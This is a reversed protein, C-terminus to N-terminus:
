LQVVGMGHKKLLEVLRDLQFPKSMFDQMGAALCKKRDDKTANATLAIIKPVSASSNEQILKTAQYGDMEPMQIDMFVLDYVNHECLEVAIKGNEAVDPDFGLKQLLTSILKQNILNDEVVLIRSGESSEPKTISEENSLLDTFVRLFDQGEFTSSLKVHRGKLELEDSWSSSSDEQVIVYKAERNLVLDQNKNLVKNMGVSDVILIANQLESMSEHGSFLFCGLGHRVVTTKIRVRQFTDELCVIVPRCTLKSLDTEIRTAQNKAIPLSITFFFESGRGKESKVDLKGGMVQILRASIALGLGTGGFKRSTSSDEQAFADFVSGLKEEDIGVGTDKVRIRIEAETESRTILNAGLEVFGESTFKIANSVLNLVVQGIRASDGLLHEPIRLDIDKRLMLKKEAALAGFVELSQQLCDSLSFVSSDVAMKGAEIKSFDLIDNIIVLLNTGSSMLLETYEKQEFNLDTTSLLQTMGLVGNLPTRIEHSMVALFESKALVAEEAVIKSKKLSEQYDKRRTIDRIFVSFMNRRDVVFPAISCEADFIEGNRKLGNLEFPRNIFGSARKRLYNNFWNLHVARDPEPIIVHNAYKGLVEEETWGFLLEAKTNWSTIVGKEDMALVADMSSNILANLMEQSERLQNVAKARKGMERSLEGNLMQLKSVKDSLVQHVQSRSLISIRDDEILIDPLLGIVAPFNELPAYLNATEQYAADYIERAKIPGLRDSIEEYFQRSVKATIRVKDENSGSIDQAGIIGDASCKEPLDEIFSQFVKGIVFEQKGLRTELHILIRQLMFKCLLLRQPASSQFILDFKPDHLLVSFDEKVLKRINERSVRKGSDVESFYQEFQLYIVPLEKMRNLPSSGLFEVAKKNLGAALQHDEIMQQLKVVLMSAGNPANDLKSDAEIGSFIKRLYNIM